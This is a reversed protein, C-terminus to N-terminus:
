KEEQGVDGAQPDTQPTPQSALAAEILARAIDAAKKREQWIWDNGYFRAQQYTHEAVEYFRARLSQEGSWGAKETAEILPDFRRYRALAKEIVAFAEYYHRRAHDHAFVATESMAKKAEEITM